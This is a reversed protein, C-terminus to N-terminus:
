NIEAESIIKVQDNNRRRKLSGIVFYKGNFKALYKGGFLKDPKGTKLERSKIKILYYKGNQPIIQEDNSAATRINLLM